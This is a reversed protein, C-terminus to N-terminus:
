KLHNILAGPPTTRHFYDSIFFIKHCQGKLFPTTHVLGGESSQRSQRWGLLTAYALGGEASLLICGTVKFTCKCSIKQNLSTQGFSGM